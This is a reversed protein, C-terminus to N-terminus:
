DFGAMVVRLTCVPEGNVTVGGISVRGDDAARKSSRDIGV